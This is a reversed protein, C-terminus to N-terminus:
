YKIGVTVRFSRGPMPFNKVIEYNKNLLNLVEIRLSTTMKRFRFDRYASVSHDTYGDLRNKAINQGLVYRKGSFLMAYSLNVYPTELVAQGSGSVRPTYAIQHKYTMSEPSDPDSSTVDLARQYTYNGSLTLLYGEFPTLCINATVDIGKIDVKGLNVMSWIFLNKTPTAVIKDTVRNAYADVTASLSSVLGEFQKGYTLGINYQQAQEPKLRINGTQGYYLDNFSPLRFIDKYFFRIRFEERPFPKFSASFYPSWKRHGGASSGVSVDENIVTALVSASVTMWENVYKGALATLWSYRVPKAFNHLDANMRNISGDTSLSFSLNDFARYLASASVYYEQQYYNNESQGTSGKYDPDLYRQYSWNWKASAQVAWRHNLEKKYHGQVFVNKDWLHQSAYDYYYTTANPLGRSSQYYYAKLRLQEKDSFNGFVNVETRLNQVETNKRKERSHQDDKDGYYLTYPYRGDSSMWEGQATLSWKDALQQEWYLSPNVLGWSGTKLTGKLLFNKGDEFHPTLTQISLTGASAFLRAPQFIQEGQGHNLVLKDINELSFRGLDIQGTQCDTVAIGDYSVATHQAGLSRVSVTKLGGIGGYDKVTVGSFHKVADSVQMVNLAKLEEASLIQVPATARVERIQYRDTVTVEPITYVRATDLVTQAFSSGTVSSIGLGALWIIKVIRKM